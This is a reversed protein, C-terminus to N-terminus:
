GDKGIESWKGWAAPLKGSAAAAMLSEAEEKSDVWFAPIGLGAIEEGRKEQLLRPKRGPAKLEVFFMVGGPLIVLRDPVGDCGPSVFKYARGGAREALKSLRAEVDRERTM